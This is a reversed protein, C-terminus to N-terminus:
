MLSKESSDPSPLIVSHIIELVSDMLSSLSEGRYLAWAAGFLFDHMTYRLGMQMSTTWRRNEFKERSPVMWVSHFCIALFGYPLFILQVWFLFVLSRGEDAWCGSPLFLLCASATHQWPATSVGCAAKGWARRNWVSPWFSRIWPSNPDIWPDSRSGPGKLLFLAVWATSLTKTPKKEM